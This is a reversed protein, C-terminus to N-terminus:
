LRPTVDKTARKSALTAAVADMFPETNLYQDETPKNTGHVLIALDKTMGGREITEIVSSELDQVLHDCSISLTLDACISSM